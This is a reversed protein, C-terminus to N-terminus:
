YLKITSTRLLLNEQRKLYSFEGWSFIFRLNKLEYDKDFSYTLEFGEPVRTCCIQVFRYGQFKRSALAKLFKEKEPAM